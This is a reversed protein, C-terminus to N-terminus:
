LLAKAKRLDLRRNRASMGAGCHLGVPGSFEARQAGVLQALRM